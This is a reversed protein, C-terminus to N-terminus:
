IRKKSEKFLLIFLLMLIPTYGIFKLENEAGLFYYSVPLFSVLSIIMSIWSRKFLGYAFSIISIGCSFQWLFVIWNLTNM